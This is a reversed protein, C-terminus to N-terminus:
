PLRLFVLNGITSLKDFHVNSSFLNPLNMHDIKPCNRATNSWLNFDLTTASFKIGVTVAVTHPRLKLGNSHGYLKKKSKKWSPTRRGPKHLLSFLFLQWINPFM